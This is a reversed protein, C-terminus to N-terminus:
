NKNYIYSAYMDKELIRTNLNNHFPINTHQQPDHHLSENRIHNVGKVEWAPTEVRSQRVFSKTTSYTNQNNAPSVSSYETCDRTLPKTLGLLDNELSIANSSLNAGWSQLRIHPDEQLPMETGNGPTNLMYRGEFTSEALYKQTRSNDYRFRTFSM